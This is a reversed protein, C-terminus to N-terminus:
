QLFSKDLYILKNNSNVKLKDISNINVISRFQNNYFINKGKPSVIQKKSIIGKFIPYYSKTTITNKTLIYNEKFKSNKKILNTPARTILGHLGTSAFFTSGFVSDSFSFSSEYYEFGQLATFIVALLITIFISIIAKVRKGAILAHHGYTIFAGSSILLFTNLLPVAFPDL